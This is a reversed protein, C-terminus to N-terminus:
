RAFCRCNDDHSCMTSKGVGFAVLPGTIFKQINEKNTPILAIGVLSVLSVVISALIGSVWQLSEELEPCSEEEEHIVCGEMLMYLIQPMASEFETENLLSNADVDFAQFIEDPLPCVSTFNVTQKLLNYRKLKKHDHDHDHEDEHDHGGDAEMHIDHPDMGEEGGFTDIFYDSFEDLNILEDGDEDYHEIIEETPSQALVHTVLLLLISFTIYTSHKM